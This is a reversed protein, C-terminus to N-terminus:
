REGFTYAARVGIYSNTVTKETVAFTAPDIDSEKAFIMQYRLAIDINETIFMGIMPALGFNSNTETKESTTVAGTALNVNTETVKVSTMHLGTLLGAYLGEQNDSFYYKAGVQIPIIGQSKGEFTVGLIEVDKGAFSMYGAQAILGLNDGVPLEFGLSVGLGIGVFDSWDGVPLGLELGASFRNEQATAMTTAGILAIGALLYKMNMHAQNQQNTHGFTVPDEV